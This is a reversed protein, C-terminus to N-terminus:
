NRTFVETQFSTVSTNGYSDRSQYALEFDVNPTLVIALPCGGCAEASQALQFSSVGLAMQRGNATINAVVSTFTADPMPQRSASAAGPIQVTQRYLNYTGSSNGDDVLAWVIWSQWLPGGKNSDYYYQGHFARASSFREAVPFSVASAESGPGLSTPALVVTSTGKMIVRLSLEDSVRLDDELLYVMTAAPAETEAKASSASALGLVPLFMGYVLGLFLAVIAATVLMEVLTFARAARKTRCM